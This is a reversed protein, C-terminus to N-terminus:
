QLRSTVSEQNCFAEHTRAEHPMETRQLESRQLEGETMFRAMLAAGALGIDTKSLSAQIAEQDTYLGMKRLYEDTTTAHYHGLLSKAASIGGDRFALHASVHRISYFVFPKVGARRCLRACFKSRHRFPLGLAGACHTQMFVNDVACPRAQRWWTLAKVLEPHMDNWRVRPRGDKTKHDSLRIKGEQLRIDRTWSLRFVEGARAGTYYFTLLMVLDQGKALELVKVVDDEPPVYREEEEVPFERVQAFPSLGPPFGVVNGMGWNWAALVNKRYKNAVSAPNGIKGKPKPKDRAPAEGAEQAALREAAERAKADYVGNLFATALPKTVAALSHVGNKHCFAFFAHLHTQKEVYSSRGMSRKVHDLYSEGWALLRESDTLIAKKKARAELFEKKRDVEWQRAAMWEPGKRRGPPFFKSDVEKGNVVVRALWANGRNKRLTPM